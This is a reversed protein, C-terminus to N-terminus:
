RIQSGLIDEYANRPKTQSSIAKILEASTTNARFENMHIKASYLSGAVSDSLDKSGRLNHDIKGNIYELERIETSLIPHRPGHWRNTLIANKMEIYGDPTRDLSLLKAKFGNLELNQLMNRSQYSDMSVVAVPYGRARLDVIFNQLKHIPVEQGPKSEVAIVFDTHYVPENIIVNKGSAADYRELTIIGDLRTSAIGTRDNVLGLDLHIFRPRQDKKIENYELYNMLRDSEDYFDLAIVEKTVPNNHTFAQNIKETSTIFRYAAQTSVGAIDQLAKNIDLRFNEAFEEPVNLVRAEEVGALQDSREVIFPDRFQSGIFCKFTKGSLKLKWPPLVNWRAEDVIKIRELDAPDRDKLLVDDIFSGCDTKSSDIWMRGPPLQPFRSELRQRISNYNDAAQNAIKNQFNIESIITSFIAKGLFHSARSGSQVDIMKPFLSRGTSAKLQRRFYPSDRFWSYLQDSLVSASLGLTANILALVIKDSKILGYKGHPDKVHLLKCIDYAVGALACSSKGLGIAGSLIVERYPSNFPNPFINYLTSRWFPYLKDGHLMEGLFEYDDVFESMTPPCEEYGGLRALTKLAEKRGDSEILKAILEDVTTSPADIAKM